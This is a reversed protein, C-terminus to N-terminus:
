GFVLRVSASWCVMRVKRTLAGGGRCWRCMCVCACMCVFVRGCVGSEVGFWLCHLSCRARTVDCTRVATDIGAQKMEQFQQVLTTSNSSSYCGRAPYYPAHIDDPPRFKADAGHPFRDRIAPTWHPLVEHDWHLWRGDSSPNGYWLYFAAHIGGLEQAIAVCATAAVAVAM